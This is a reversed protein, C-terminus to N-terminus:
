GRAPESGKLARLLVPNPEGREYALAVLAAMGERRDDEDRSAGLSALLGATAGKSRQGALVRMAADVQGDASVVGAQGTGARARRAVEPDSGGAAQRLLPLAIRGATFLSKQARERVAFSDDSLQRLLRAVEKHRAPDPSQDRLFELLATGKTAIGAKRLL